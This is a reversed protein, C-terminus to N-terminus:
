LPRQSYVGSRASFAILVVQNNVADTHYILRYAGIRYRWLEKSEGKLPKITDGKQKTPNAVIKEIAELIRGKLKRDLKQIAKRFEKTMSFPWLTRPSPLTAGSLEIEPSEELMFNLCNEALTEPLEEELETPGEIECDEFEPFERKKIIPRSPPPAFNKAPVPEKSDLVEMLTYTTWFGQDSEIQGTESERIEAQFPKNM